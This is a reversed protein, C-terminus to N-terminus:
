VVKHVGDAVRQDSSSDRQRRRCISMLMGEVQMHKRDGDRERMENGDSHGGVDCTAAAGYRLPGGEPIGHVM